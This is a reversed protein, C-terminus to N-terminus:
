CQIRGAGMNGGRQNRARKDSQPSAGRGDAAEKMKREYEEALDYLDDDKDGNYDEDDSKKKPPPQKDIKSAKTKEPIFEIEYGVGEVFIELLGKIKSIDREWIKVRILGEKILILEDVVIVEGALEAIVTVADVNRAFDPVNIM